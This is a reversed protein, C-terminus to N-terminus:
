QEEFRYAGDVGRRLQAGIVITPERRRVDPGTGLRANGNAAIRLRVPLNADRTRVFRLVVRKRAAVTIGTGIMVRPATDFDVQEPQGLFTLISTAEDAGEKDERKVFGIRAAVSLNQIFYEKSVVVEV